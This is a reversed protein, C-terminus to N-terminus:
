EAADMHALEYAVEDRAKDPLQMTMLEGRAIGPWEDRAECEAVIRLMRRYLLRGVEVDEPEWELVVVDHPPSSQVVITVPCDDVEFGMAAMGDVYFAIQAHFALDYAQWMISKPDAKDASKLETLRGSVDDAVGKCALGTAEDTWELPTEHKDGELMPAAAPDWLVSTATGHAKDYEATTLIDRDAHEEAFADWKKGRRQGEYVAFREDWAGPEFVLCHTARGIRMAATDAKPTQRHHKYHLPSFCEPRLRMAKLSSFSVPRESSLYPRQETM